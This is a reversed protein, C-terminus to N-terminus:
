KNTVAAKINKYFSSSSVYIFLANLICILYVINMTTMEKKFFFILSNSHFFNYILIITLTLYLINAEEADKILESVNKGGGKELLREAKKIFENTRLVKFKHYNDLIETIYNTVENINNPRSNKKKNHFSLIKTWFSLVSLMCLYGMKTLLMSILKHFVPIVFYYAIGFLVLFPIIVPILKINLKLLSNNILYFLNQDLFTICYSDFSLFTIIAVLFIYKDRKLKEIWHIYNNM